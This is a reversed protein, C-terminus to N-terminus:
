GMVFKPPPHSPHGLDLGVFLNPHGMKAVTEDDSLHANACRAFRRGSDLQRNGREWGLRVRVIDKLVDAGIKLGRRGYAELYLHAKQLVL